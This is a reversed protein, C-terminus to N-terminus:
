KSGRRLMTLICFVVGIWGIALVYWPNMKIVFRVIPDLIFDFMNKDGIKNYIVFIIVSLLFGGFAVSLKFFLHM